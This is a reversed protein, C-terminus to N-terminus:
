ISGVEAMAVNEKTGIRSNFIVWKDDRSFVPHGHSFQTPGPNYRCLRRLNAIGNGHTMLAMYNGGDKEEYNRFGRDGVALTNTSNSQIHGPRPGPLKYTRIWTGDTRIFANYYEMKGERECEYQFGVEGERTFYEHVTFENDRMPFLPTAKAKRSTSGVGVAFMRQSVLGGGEHCFVIQEPNTPHILVHSIWNHEGWVAVPTGNSTNIRMIVCGPHQYFTEAMDSYIVGTRTSVTRKEKYAFAIFDGKTTCTPLVPDYGDPVKYIDRDELTDVKLSRLVPGDFYLLHGGLGLCAKTPSINEGETLQTLKKARIDLLYHQFKGTRNSGFVVRDSGEVFSESTFYLHVNDSGGGSLLMCRAGTEKDTYEKVEDAVSVTRGIPGHSAPQPARTAVEAAILRSFAFGVPAIALGKLFRRRPFPRSKM